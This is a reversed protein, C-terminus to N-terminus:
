ALTNQDAIATIEAGILWVRLPVLISAPALVAVSFKVVLADRVILETARIRLGRTVCAAEKVSLCSHTQSARVAAELTLVTVSALDALGAEAKDM